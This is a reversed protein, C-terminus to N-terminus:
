VRSAVGTVVRFAEQLVGLGVKGNAFINELILGSFRLFHM